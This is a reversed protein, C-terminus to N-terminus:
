VADSYDDVLHRDVALAKAALLQVDRHHADHRRHQQEEQQRLGETQEPQLQFFSVGADQEPHPPTKTM